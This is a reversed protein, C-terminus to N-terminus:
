HAKSTHPKEALSQSSQRVKDGGRYELRGGGGGKQRRPKGKQLGEPLSLSYMRLLLFGLCKDCLMALNEDLRTTEDAALREILATKRTWRYPRDSQVRTMHKSDNFGNYLRKALLDFKVKPSMM